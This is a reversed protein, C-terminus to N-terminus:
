GPALLTLEDMTRMIKARQEGPLMSLVKIQTRMLADRKDERLAQLGELMWKMHEKRQNDPMNTLAKLRKEMLTERKEEPLEATAGAMVNMTARFENRLALPRFVLILLTGLIFLTLGITFGLPNKDPYLGVFETAFTVADSQLNFLHIYGLIMPVVGVYLLLQKAFLQGFTEVGELLKTKYWGRVIVLLIFSLALLTLGVIGPTRPLSLYRPSMGLVTFPTFGKFANVFGYLLILLGIFLLVERGWNAKMGFAAPDGLMRPGRGRFMKYIGRIPILAIIGWFALAFGWWNFRPFSLHDHVMIMIGVGLLIVAKVFNVGGPLILDPRFMAKEGLLFQPRFPATLGTAYDGQTRKSALWAGSLWFGGFISLAAFAKTLITLPESGGMPSTVPARFLAALVIFFPMFIVGAVFLPKKYVSFYNKVGALPYLMITVVGAIFGIGILPSPESFANGTILAPKPHFPGVVKDVQPTMVIWKLPEFAYPIAFVLFLGTLPILVWLHALDWASSTTKTASLSYAILTVLTPLLYGVALGEVVRGDQFLLSMLWWWTLFASYIVAYLPVAGLIFPVRAM